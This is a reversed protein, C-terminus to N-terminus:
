RLKHALASVALHANRGPRFGFSFADGLPEMYPEMIIKLLMQLVRDKLTPIGLSRFGGDKKPIFVRLIPKAKFRMINSNNLSKFLKIKLAINYNIINQSLSKFAYKENQKYWLLKKRLNFVSQKGIL